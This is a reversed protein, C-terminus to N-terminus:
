IKKFIHEKRINEVMTYGLSKMYTVTKNYKIMNDQMLDITKTFEALVVCDNNKLTEEAGMLAEYEAGQIDMKIFSVNKLNYKDLTTCKGVSSAIEANDIISTYGLMYPKYSVNLECEKDYLGVDYLTVNDLENIKVTEELAKFTKPMMEFAHIHCTPMIKSFALTFTGINAGVDIIISDPKAYKKFLNVVHPQYFQKQKILTILSDVDEPYSAIKGYTYNLIQTPKSNYIVDNYQALITDKSAMMMLIQNYKNEYIKYQKKLKSDKIELSKDNNIVPQSNNKVRKLERRVKKYKQRLKNYRHTLKPNEVEITTLEEEMNKEFNVDIKEIPLNM